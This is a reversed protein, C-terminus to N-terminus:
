ITDNKKLERLLEELQQDIIANSDGGGYSLAGSTFTTGFTDALTKTQLLGSAFDRDTLSTLPHIFTGWVLEQAVAYRADLATDFNAQMLRLLGGEPLDAVMAIPTIIRMRGANPDTVVALQTNDITLEWGNATRTADPDLQDIIAGMFALTEAVDGGPADPAEVEASDDQTEQSEAQIEAEIDSFDDPPPQDSGDQACAPTALLLLSSLAVFSSARM